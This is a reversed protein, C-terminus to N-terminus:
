KGTLQMRNRTYCDAFLPVIMSLRHKNLIRTKSEFLAHIISHVAVTHHISQTLCFVDCLFCTHIFHSQNLSRILSYLEQGIVLLCVFISMCMFSHVFLFSTSLCQCACSCILLLFVNMSIEPSSESVFRMAYLHYRSLISIICTSFAQCTIQVSEQLAVM